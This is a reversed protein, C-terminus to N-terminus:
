TAPADDKTPLHIARLQADSFKRRIRKIAASIEQSPADALVTVSKDAYATIELRKERIAFRHSWNIEIIEPNENIPSEVVEGGRAVQVCDCDTMELLWADGEATSYLFFVGLERNVAKKAQAAEQIAQVGGMLTIKLAAEPSLQPKAAREKLGCCHKYKKGSQCPCKENRGIKAM